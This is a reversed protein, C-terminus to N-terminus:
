RPRMDVPLCSYGTDRFPIPKKIWQQGTAECRDATQFYGPMISTASGGGTIWIVLVWVM